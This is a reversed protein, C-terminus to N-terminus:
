QKSRQVYDKVQQELYKHVDDGLGGSVIVTLNTKPHYFKRHSGRTHLLIFGARRLDRIIERTKQPM